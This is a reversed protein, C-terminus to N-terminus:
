FGAALRVDYVSLDARVRVFRVRHRWRGVPEDYAIDASVEVVVTPQVPVYALPRRDELQGTWAAPLPSPWPHPVAGGRQQAVYRQLAMGLEGGAQGVPHTAGVYRLRGRQDFRGLLLSGPVSLRGTVGGVIAEVTSRTKVKIWGPKGPEYRGHPDKAVCGEVGAHSWDAMWGRAEALDATQPCLQLQPPTNALLQELLHRREILPLGTVDEGGAQLVDFVVYHAPRDCAERPLRRGAVIRGQLANFDTRGRDPDWIVLEGDLVTGPPLTRLLRRVDPFYPTLDRLQRSHILVRDEAIWALARFGDWKPEFLWGAPLEAATVARMPEVPPRM